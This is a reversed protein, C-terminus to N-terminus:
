FQPPPPPPYPHTLINVLGGSMDKSQSSPQPWMQNTDFTLVLNLCPVDSYNSMLFETRFVIQFFVLPSYFLQCNYMIILCLTLTLVTDINSVPNINIDINSVPNINIGKRIDSVFILTM